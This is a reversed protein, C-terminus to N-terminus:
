GPTLGSELRPALGQQHEGIAAVIHDFVRRVRAPVPGRQPRYVYVGWPPPSWDPRLALLRGQRLLPQALYDPLQAYALGALVAQVEADPDDTVWARDHPTFQRGGALTWPWIRGTNPDILATVPCRALDDLTEPVGLRQVLAPAAVLAFGVEGARRAVFRNDRLFGMRVGIDIQADVVDAFVDSLRLDPMLGPHQLALRALAPAICCRGLVRPATIRVRGALDADAAGTKDVSPAVSGLVAELEALLSRTRGALQEGFATIRVQRTSRLFLLEGLQQELQRIARTVTQPSTGLRVAAERFSSAEAAAQFIRLLELPKLM